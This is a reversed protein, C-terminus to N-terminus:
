AFFLLAFVGLFGLGLAWSWHQLGMLMGLTIQNAVPWTFCPWEYIDFIPSPPVPEAQDGPVSYDAFGLRVSISPVSSLVYSSFLLGLALFIFALVAFVRATTSICSSNEEAKLLMAGLGGLAASQIGAMWKGWEQIQALAEAAARRSSFVPQTNNESGMSPRHKEDPLLRKLWKM